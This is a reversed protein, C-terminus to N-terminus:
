AGFVSAYSDDVIKTIEDNTLAKMDSSKVYGTLDVDTNGIKEYSSTDGNTVWIYEDYADNSDSHTDPVLYITGKDGTAPLTDFTAVIKFDITTFDALASNIATKVQDANQYKYGEVTSKVNAATQYGYTEIQKKVDDSTIVTIAATKNTITVAKGNVTISTIDNVQAGDAIKSLKNFLAVSMLGAGNASVESYTTDKDVITSVTAGSGDKLLISKGDTSKEITYTTNNALPSSKLKTFLYNTLFILEDKDLRKYEAM